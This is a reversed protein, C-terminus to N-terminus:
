PDTHNSMRLTWTIGLRPFTQTRLLTTGPLYYHYNSTETILFVLRSRHARTLIEANAPGHLLAVPCSPHPLYRSVYLLEDECAFDHTEPAAVILLDQPGPTPFLIQRPANTAKVLAPLNTCLAMVCAFCILHMILPRSKFLIPILAYVAPGALLTYRIFYLHDTHRTLDLCAVVAVTGILWSTWMLIWPNRRSVWPILGVTYLAIGLIAAPIALTPPISSLLEIPAVAIRMLTLEFHDPQASTLFLTAVDGTSFMERQQWMFPGWIVAFVIGAAFFASTLGRRQGATKWLCYLLLGGLAGICFYHNLLTSLLAIWLLIWRRRSLGSLQIRVILDIVWLGAALLLTYGRATRAYEIQPAAIAMLLSAWVAPALGEQLRVVDFLLAIAVASFATSFLRGQLDSNGLIDEWLRLLILYLPPHTIQMHSWIEWFPPADTLSFFPPPSIVKGFPLHQHLSGRGGAVEVTWAEDLTYANRDLQYLRPIAALILIALLWLNPKLWGPSKSSLVGKPPPVLAMDINDPV